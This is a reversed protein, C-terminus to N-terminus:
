AIGAWFYGVVTSKKQNSFCWWAQLRHNSDRVSPGWNQWTRRLSSGTQRLWVLSIRTWNFGGKRRTRLANNYKDEKWGTKWWAMGEMQIDHHIIWPIPSIIRWRSEACLVISKHPLCNLATDTNHAIWRARWCKAGLHLSIHTWNRLSCNSREPRARSWYEKWKCGRICYAVGSKYHHSSRLIEM